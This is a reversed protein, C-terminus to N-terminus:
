EKPPDSTKSGSPSEIRTHEFIRQDTIRNAKLVVGKTVSRVWIGINTKKAFTMNQRNTLENNEIRCGEVNDVAIGYTEWDTIV